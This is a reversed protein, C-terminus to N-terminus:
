VAGAGAFRRNHCPIREGSGLTFFELSRADKLLVELQKHSIFLIVGTISAVFYDHDGFDTLLTILPRAAPM